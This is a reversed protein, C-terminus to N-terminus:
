IATESLEIDKAHVTAVTEVEKLQQEYIKVYILAWHCSDAVSKAVNDISVVVANPNLCMEAFLNRM